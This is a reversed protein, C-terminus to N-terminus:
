DKVNKIPTSIPQWNVREGKTCCEMCLVSTGTVGNNSKFCGVCDAHKDQKPAVEEVMSADHISGKGFCVYHMCEDYSLNCKSQLEKAKAHLDEPTKDLKIEDSNPSPKKVYDKAKLEEEGNFLRLMEVLTLRKEETYLRKEVKKKFAEVAKDINKGYGVCPSGETTCTWESKLYEIQYTM